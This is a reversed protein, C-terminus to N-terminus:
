GELATLIAAIVAENHMRVDIAIAEELGSAAGAAGRDRAPRKRGSAGLEPAQGSATQEIRAPPPARRRKQPEEVRGLDLSVHVRGRGFRTTTGGVSVPAQAPQTTLSVSTAFGITAAAALSAAPQATLDAAAAFAIVADAALGEIAANPGEYRSAYFRANYYRGGKYRKGAV